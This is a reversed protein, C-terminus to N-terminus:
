STAATVVYEFNFPINGQAVHLLETETFPLLAINPMKLEDHEFNQWTLGLRPSQSFAKMVADRENRAQRESNDDNNGLRFGVAQWIKLTGDVRIKYQAPNSVSGVADDFGPTFGTVPTQTHGNQSKVKAPIWSSTTVAWGNIKGGDADARLQDLVQGVTMAFIWRNYVASKLADLIPPLSGLVPVRTAKLVAVAADVVDNETPPQM